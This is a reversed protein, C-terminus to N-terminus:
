CSYLSVSRIVYKAVMVLHELYTYKPNSSIYFASVHTRREREAEKFMSGNLFLHVTAKFNNSVINPWIMTFLRTSQEVKRSILPLAM